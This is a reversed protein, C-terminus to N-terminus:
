LTGRSMFLADGWKLRGDANYQFDYFDYLDYGFSDLLRALEFYPAQGIYVPVFVIECLLLRVRGTTLLESAGALVDLEAGQTDIKLIDVQEITKERCFADLTTMPVSVDVVREVPGDVYGRGVDAMPLISSMASNTFAHLTATAPRGGVALQHPTVRTEREFREALTRAAEPNPEFAHVRASAFAELYAAVTDGVNAGVDIIVRAEGSLLRRQDDLSSKRHFGRLRPEPAAFREPPLTRVAISSVAFRPRQRRGSNRIILAAVEELREVRLRVDAPGDASGIERECFYTSLDAGVLGIGIRGDIAHVHVAVEAPGGHPEAMQQREFAVAYSWQQEPGLGRLPVGPELTTGNHAVFSGISFM